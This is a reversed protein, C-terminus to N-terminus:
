EAIVEFALLRKALLSDLMERESEKLYTWRLQYRDMMAQKQELQHQEDENIFDLYLNAQPLYFSAFCLEDIPLQREYAHPIGALYLWNDIELEGQHRVYHGDLAQYKAAFQARFRAFSLHTNEQTSNGKLKSALERLRPHFSLTDPWIAYPIGTQQSQKQQGGIQEGAATVKWGKTAKQLWGLERLLLNIQNASLSFYHAIQKASHYGQEQKLASQGRVDLDNPWIIYTGFKDSQKYEGGHRRGLDTLQWQEQQRAILGAQQLQIFLTKLDIQRKKALASTSLKEPSSNSM